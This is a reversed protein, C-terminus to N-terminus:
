VAAAEEVDALNISIRSIINGLLSNKGDHEQELQRFLERAVSLYRFAQQRTEQRNILEIAMGLNFGLQQCIQGYTDDKNSNIAASLFITAYLSANTKAMAQEVSTHMKYKMVRGENMACIMRAFPMMIKKNDADVLLKLLRGFLFDGILICFQMDRNHEQGEEADKVFSHIYNAFYATRFINAFMLSKGDCGLYEYAAIVVGPLTKWTIDQELQQYYLNTAEWWPEITTKFLKDMELLNSDLERADFLDMERKRETPLWDSQSMEDPISRLNISINM